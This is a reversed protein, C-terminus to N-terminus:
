FDRKEYIKVSLVYSAFHILVALTFMIGNVVLSNASAYAYLELINEEYRAFTFGYFFGFIVMPILIIYVLAPSSAAAIRMAFPFCLLCSISYFLLSVMITALMMDFYLNWDNSLIINALPMIIICLLICGILLIFSLAYKGLVMQNRKVPFGLFLTVSDKKEVVFFGICVSVIFLAAFPMIFLPNFSLAIFLFCPPFIFLELRYTKTSLWYFRMLKMVM